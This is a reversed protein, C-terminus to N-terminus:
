KTNLRIFMAANNNNNNNVNAKEELLVSNALLHCFSQPHYCCRQRQKENMHETINRNHKEAPVCATSEAAYSRHFLLSAAERFSM